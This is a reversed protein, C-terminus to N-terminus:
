DLLMEGMEATGVFINVRPLDRLWNNACFITFYLECVLLKDFTLRKAAAFYLYDTFNYCNAVPYSERSGEVVERM